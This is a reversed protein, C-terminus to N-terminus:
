VNTYSLCSLLNHEKLFNSKEFLVFLNFRLFYSIVSKVLLNEHRKTDQNRNKCPQSLVKHAEHLFKLHHWKIYIQINIIFIINLKSKEEVNIKNKQLEEVNIMTQSNRLDCPLQMRCSYNGKQGLTYQKLNTKLNNSEQNTREISESSQQSSPSRRM